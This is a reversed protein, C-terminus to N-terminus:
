CYLVEKEFNGLPVIGNIYKIDLGTPLYICVEEEPVDKGDEIMLELINSGHGLLVGKRSSAISLQKRAMEESIGREYLNLNYKELELTGYDMLDMMSIEESLDPFKSDLYHKFAVQEAYLKSIEMVDGEWSELDEFQTAMGPKNLKEPNPTFFLYNDYTENIRFKSFQERQLKNKELLKLVGEISTGHVLATEDKNLATKILPNM